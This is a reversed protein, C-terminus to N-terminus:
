RKYIKFNGLIRGECMHRKMNRMEFAIVNLCFVLLRKNDM